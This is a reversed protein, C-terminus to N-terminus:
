GNQGLFAGMSIDTDLRVRPAEGTLQSLPHSFYKGSGDEQVSVDRQEVFSMATVMRVFQRAMLMPWQLENRLTRVNLERLNSLNEYGDTRVDEVKAAIRLDRKEDNTSEVVSSFAAAIRKWGSGSIVEEDALFPLEVYEEGM